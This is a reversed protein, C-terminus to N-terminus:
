NTNSMTYKQGDFTAAERRVREPDGSLRQVDSLRYSEKLVTANIRWRYGNVDIVQEGEAM